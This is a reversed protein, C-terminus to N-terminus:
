VVRLIVLTMDDHQEAGAVFGDAAALIRQLIEKAPLSDYQKVTEMM